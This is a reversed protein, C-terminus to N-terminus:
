SSPRQGLREPNAELRDLLRLFGDLITMPHPPAGPIYLDVPLIGEVGNHVEPHDRFIGGSIASAGVAVVIKPAPTCAYCDILAERM